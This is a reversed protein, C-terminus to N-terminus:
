HREAPGAMSHQAVTFTSAHKLLMDLLSHNSNSEAKHAPVACLEFLHCSSKKNRQSVQASTSHTEQAYLVAQQAWRHAEQLNAEIIHVDM